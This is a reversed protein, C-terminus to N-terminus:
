VLVKIKVLKLHAQHEVKYAVLHDKLNDEVCEVIFNIDSVSDYNLIVEQETDIKILAYGIASLDNKFNVKLDM